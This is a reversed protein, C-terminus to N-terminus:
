ISIKVLGHYIMFSEYLFIHKYIIYFVIVILYLYIYMSVCVCMYITMLLYLKVYFNDNM